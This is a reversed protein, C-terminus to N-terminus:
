ECLDIHEIAQKAALQEALRKSNGIGKGATVGDIKVEYEFIPAHPKGSQKVLHYSVKISHKSSFENLVTKYDCTNDHKDKGNFRDALKALIFKEAMEIKGSDLFIAATVAEFIDSMIKSQTAIQERNEGKGVILFKHLGLREVEAALPEKSVISARLKTLSGEHADPNIEMLRKAVIFDLISDGLFELSQYNKLASSCASSHTIARELLAKNKFTYGIKKELTVIDNDKLLCESGLAACPQTTACTDDQSSISQNLIDKNESMISRNGKDTKSQTITTLLLM